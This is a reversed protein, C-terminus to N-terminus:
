RMLLITVIVHKQQTTEKGHEKDLSIYKPAAELPVALDDIDMWRDIDRSRQRERERKM